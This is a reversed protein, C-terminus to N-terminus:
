LCTYLSHVMASPDPVVIDAHTKQNRVANDTTFIGGGSGSSESLLPIAASPSPKPKGASLITGVSMIDDEDLWSPSSKPPPPSPWTSVTPSARPTDPLRLRSLAGGGVRSLPPQRLVM